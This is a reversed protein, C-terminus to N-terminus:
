AEKYGPVNHTYKVTIQRNYEEQDDEGYKDEDEKSEATLVEQLDTKSIENKTSFKNTIDGMTPTM